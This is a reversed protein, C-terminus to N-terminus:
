LKKNVGGTIEIDCSMRRKLLKETNNVILAKKHSYLIKRKIELEEIGNKRYYLVLNWFDNLKTKM